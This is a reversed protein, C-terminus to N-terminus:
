LYVVLICCFLMQWLRVKPQVCCVLSPLSHQLHNLQLCLLWWCHSVSGKVGIQSLPSPLTSWEEMFALISPIKKIGQWALHTRFASDLLLRPQRVRSIISPIYALGADSCVGLQWDCALPSLTDISKSSLWPWMCMRVVITHVCVCVCLSLFGHCVKEAM